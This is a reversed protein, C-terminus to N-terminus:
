SAGRPHVGHFGRDRDTQHGLRPLPGEYEVRGGGIAPERRGAPRRGLEAEVGDLNEGLRGLRKRHRREPLQEGLIAETDSGDPCASAPDLLFEVEAM